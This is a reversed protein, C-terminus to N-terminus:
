AMRVHAIDRQRELTRTVVQAVRDALRAVATLLNDQVESVMVDTGNKLHLLVKCEQDIGGRPGNNDCVTFQVSDIRSEFRSLAYQFQREITEQVTDSLKVNLSRIMLRMPFMGELPPVRVFPIVGQRVRKRALSSNDEVASLIRQEASHLPM